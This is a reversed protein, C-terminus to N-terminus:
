VDLEQCKRIIFTKKEQHELDAVKTSEDSYREFQEKTIEYWDSILTMFGGVDTSTSYIDAYHKKCKPCFGLRANSWWGIKDIFQFWHRGNRPCRMKSM